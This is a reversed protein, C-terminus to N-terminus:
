VDLAVGMKKMEAVMKPKISEEFHNGRLSIANVSHNQHVLTYLRNFGLMGLQNHGLDITKVKLLSISQCLSAM